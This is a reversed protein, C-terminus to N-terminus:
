QYHCQQCTQMQSTGDEPTATTEDDYILGKPNTSGHAKHCTGCFVQTDSTGSTGPVTGSASVVPVRSALASFWHNPDVTGNVVAQAM